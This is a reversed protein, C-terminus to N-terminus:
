QKKCKEFDRRCIELNKTKGKTNNASWIRDEPRMFPSIYRQPVDGWKYDDKLDRYAFFFSSQGYGIKRKPIPVDDLYKEWREMFKFVKENIKFGILGGMVKRPTSSNLRFRISIDNAEILDFLDGLQIRIYMDIDSHLIFDQDTHKKMVEYISRIRQDASTYQKWIRAETTIHVKEIQHKYELLQKYSIGFKKALRKLDIQKNEVTINSHLSYLKNIQDDNLIRTCLVIPIDEGNHHKFSEVFLEAWPYFGDTLFAHVLM